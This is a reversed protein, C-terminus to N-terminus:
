NFTLDVYLRCRDGRLLSTRFMVVGGSDGRAVTEVWLAPFGRQVGLLRAEASELIVPEFVEHEETIRIAYRELVVQTLDQTADYTDALGPFRGAPLYSTEIMMPFEHVSLLRQLWVVSEQAALGLAQRVNLPPVLAAVGLLRASPNLGRRQMTRFFDCLRLVGQKVKPPAVFTGKGRVRQLVGERVLYEISQRVTARSVGFMHLLAREPPICQGARWEGSQIRGRIVQGLSHYLPILGTRLAALDDLEVTPHRSDTAPELL